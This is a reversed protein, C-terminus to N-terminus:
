TKEFLFLFLFSLAFYCLGVIILFGYQVPKDHKRKRYDVFSEEPRLKSTDPNFLRFFNKVGYSLTDFIGNSSVMVLLGFGTLIVFSLFCGDCLARLLRKEGMQWVGRLTPVLLTITLGIFGCVAYKIWRKM